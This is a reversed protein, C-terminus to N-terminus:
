PVKTSKVNRWEVKVDLNINYNIRQKEDRFAYSPTSCSILIIRTDNLLINEKMDLQRFIKDALQRTDKDNTTGRILIYCSIDYYLINKNIARQIEGPGLSISCCKDDNQPLDPSYCKIDTKEIETRLLTILDEINM